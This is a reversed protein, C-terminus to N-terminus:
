GTLRADIDRSDKTSEKRPPDLPSWLGLPYWGNSRRRLDIDSLALSYISLMPHLPNTSVAMLVERSCRVMGIGGGEVQVPASQSTRVQDCFAEYLMEFTFVDHGSTQAHTAAILLCM